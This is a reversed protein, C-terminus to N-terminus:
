EQSADMTHAVQHPVVSLYAKNMSQNLLSSSQSCDILRITSEVPTTM